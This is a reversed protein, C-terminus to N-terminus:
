DNHYHKYTASSTETTRLLMAGGRILAWNATHACEYPATTHASMPRLQTRVWLACNHACEYPATIHASMPRLQTRVWLTCKHACEYPATTHASMNEDNDKVYFWQWLTAGITEKRHMCIKPSKWANRWDSKTRDLKIDFLVTPIYIKKLETDHHTNRKTHIYRKSSILINIRSKRHLIQEYYYTFIHQVNARNARNRTNGREKM